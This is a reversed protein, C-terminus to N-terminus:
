GLLWSDDRPILQLTKFTHQSNGMRLQQLTFYYTSTPLTKKMELVRYFQKVWKRRKLINKISRQDQFDGWELRKNISVSML